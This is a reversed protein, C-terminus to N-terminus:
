SSFFSKIGVEKGFKGDVLACAGGRKEEIMEPLETWLWEPNEKLPL